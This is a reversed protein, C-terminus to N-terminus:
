SLIETIRFGIKGDIEVLEGTAFARGASFALIKPFTMNPLDTLTWGPTLNALRNVPMTISGIQFDVTVNLKDLQIDGQAASQAEDELMSSPPPPPALAAPSEEVQDEAEETAIEEGELNEKNEGKEEYPSLQEEQQAQETSDDTM